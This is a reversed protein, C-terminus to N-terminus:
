VNYVLISIRYNVKEALIDPIELGYYKVLTQVHIYLLLIFM